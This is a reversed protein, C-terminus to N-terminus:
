NGKRGKRDEKREERMDKKTELFKKFQEESLVKKLEAEFKDMVGKKGGKGAPTEEMEDMHNEMLVAIQSVQDDSLGLETKMKDVRKQAQKDGREERIAEFKTLQDATLIEKIKADFNDKTAKIANKDKNTRAADMSKIRDLTAVEVKKTQEASLGLEKTLRKTQRQAKQEPTAEKKQAFSFSAVLSFVFVLLLTRM